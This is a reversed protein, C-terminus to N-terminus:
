LAQKKYPTIIIKEYESNRLKNYLKEDLTILKIGLKEALTIYSADYVTIDLKEATIYADKILFNYSYIKFIKELIEIAKNLAEHADQEKICKLKSHKKWITNAIEYYALDLSIPKDVEEFIKESWESYKEPTLLAIIVSADFVSKKINM